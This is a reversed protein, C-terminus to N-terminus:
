CNWPVSSLNWREKNPLPLFVHVKYLTYDNSVVVEEPTVSEKWSNEPESKLFDRNTGFNFRGFKPCKRVCITIEKPICEMVGLTPPTRWLRIPTAESNPCFIPNCKGSKGKEMMKLDDYDKLSNLRRHLREEMLLWYFYYYFNSGQSQELSLHIDTLLDFPTSRLPLGRM